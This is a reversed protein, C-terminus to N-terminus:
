VIEVWRYWLFVIFGNGTVAIALNLTYIIVFGLLLLFTPLPFKVWFCPVVKFWLIYDNLIEFYKKKMKQFVLIPSFMLSIIEINTNKIRPM